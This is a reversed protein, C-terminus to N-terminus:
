KTPCFRGAALCNVLPAKYTMIKIQLKIVSIKELKRRGKTQPLM